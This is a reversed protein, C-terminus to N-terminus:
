IRGPEYRTAPLTNRRQRADTFAVQWSEVPWNNPQSLTNSGFFGPFLFVVGWRGKELSSLPDCM